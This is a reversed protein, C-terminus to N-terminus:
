CASHTGSYQNMREVEHFRSLNIGLGDPKFFPSHVKFPKRQIEQADYRVKNNCHCDDFLYFFVKLLARTFFVVHKNQNYSKPQIHITYFFNEVDKTIECVRALLAQFKTRSFFTCILIFQNSTATSTNTTTNIANITSCSSTKTALAIVRANTRSRAPLDVMTTSGNDCDDTVLQTEDVNQGNAEEEDFEDEESQDDVAVNDFFLRRTEPTSFSTSSSSSSSSPILSKYEELQTLFVARCETERAKTYAIYRVSLGTEMEQTELSKKVLAILDTQRQVTTYHNDCTDPNYRVFTLPIHGLTEWIQIMRTSECDPAYHIHQDEDVEVIVISQTEKSCFFFDPRFKSCSNGGIPKDHLYSHLGAAQLAFLVAAEKGHRIKGFHRCVFCLNGNKSKVRTRVGDKPHFEGQCFRSILDIMGPLRCEACYGPRGGEFGFCVRSRKCHCRQNVVDVMNPERCESCCLPRGGEFGFIPQHKKCECLTSVVDVMNPERCDSCCVPKNGEFGFLPRAKKICPCRLSVVDIMNPERCDSCCVPKNGEFGFSPRAKKICRCRPSVVDVMNPERCDSCCVPCNVDVLGEIENQHKSCFM